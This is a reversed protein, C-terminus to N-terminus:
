TAPTGPESPAQAPPDTPDEEEVAAPEAPADPDEWDRIRVLMAQIDALSALTEATGAQSYRNHGSQKRALWVVARKAWAPQARGLGVLGCALAISRNGGLEEEWRELQSSPTKWLKDLDLRVWEPGGYRERDEDSLRVEISGLDPAV